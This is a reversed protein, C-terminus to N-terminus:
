QTPTTSMMPRNLKRCTDLPADTTSFQNTLRTHARVGTGIEKERYGVLGLDLDGGGLEDVEGDDSEGEDAELFSERGLANGPFGQWVATQELWVDGVESEGARCGHSEDTAVSDEKGAVPGDRCEEEGVSHDADERNNVEPPFKEM